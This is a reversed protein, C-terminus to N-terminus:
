AVRKIDQQSVGDVGCGGPTLTSTGSSPYMYVNNHCAGATCTLYRVSDRAPPFLRLLAVEVEIHVRRFPM